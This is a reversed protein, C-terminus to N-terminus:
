RQDPVNLDRQVFRDAAPPSLIRLKQVYGIQFPYQIDVFDLEVGFEAALERVKATVDTTFEEGPPLTLTVIM